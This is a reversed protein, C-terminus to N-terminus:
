TDITMDYTVQWRNHFVSPYYIYYLITNQPSLCKSLLYLITYYEATFSVHITILNHSLNKPTPYISM